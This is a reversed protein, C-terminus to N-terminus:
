KSLISGTFFCDALDDKKKHTNMFKQWEIYIPDKNFIDNSIEISLKKERM